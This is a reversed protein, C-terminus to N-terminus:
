TEDGKGPKTMIYSTFGFITAALIRFPDPQWVTYAFLGFTLILALILMVRQRLADLGMSVLRAMTEMQEEM